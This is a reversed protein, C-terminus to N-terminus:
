EKDLLNWLSWDSRTWVGRDTRLHELGIADTYGAEEMADALIPMRDFARDDYIGKALGVTDSTRWAPDFYDPPCAALFVAWTWDRLKLGEAHSVTTACWEWAYSPSVVTMMASWIAYAALSSTTHRPTRHGYYQRLAENTATRTSAEFMVDRPVEGAYVWEAYNMAERMRGDNPRAREYFPLCRWAVELAYRSTQLASLGHLEKVTWELNNAPNCWYSPAKPLKRKPKTM